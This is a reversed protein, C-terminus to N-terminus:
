LWCSRLVAKLVPVAYDAVGLRAAASRLRSSECDPVARRGFVPVARGVFMLGARSGQEEPPPLACGAVIVTQCLADVWCRCLAAVSCGDPGVVSSRGGTRGSDM